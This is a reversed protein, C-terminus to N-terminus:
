KQYSKQYHGNKEFIEKATENNKQLRNRPLPHTSFLEKFYNLFSLSRHFDFGMEVFVQAIASGGLVHFYAEYIHHIGYYDAEYENKRSNMLMYLDLLGESLPKLIMHQIANSKQIQSILFHIIKFLPHKSSRENRDNSSLFSCLIQIILICIHIFLLSEISRRGHGAAAHIIEHGLTAAILDEIKLKKWEKPYTGKNDAQINKIMTEFREILATTIGIKGGPLAFANPVNSEIIRIEYEFNSGQYKRAVTVLRSFVKTVLAIKEQDISQPGYAYCVFPYSLNGILTELWNPILWFERKGTVGNKAYISDYLLYFQDFIPQVISGILNQLAQLKHCCIAYFNESRFAPFAANNISSLSNM